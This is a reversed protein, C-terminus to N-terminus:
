LDTLFKIYVKRDRQNGKKQFEVSQNAFREGYYKSIINDESISAKIKLFKRLEETRRKSIDENIKDSGVADSYGDITVGIITNKKIFDLIQLKDSNNLEISGPSYFFEFTNEKYDKNLLAKIKNESNTTGYHIAFSISDLSKLKRNEWMSLISSDYYTSMSPTIEWIVNVFYPWRGIYLKDPKIAKGSNTNILGVLDNEDGITKYVKINNPVKDGIYEVEKDIRSTSDSMQAADNDDIMTDLQLILGVIVDNNTNNIITYEIRYFQGWKNIEVDNFNFDVPTLNQIVSLGEFKYEISFHISKENGATKAIGSIYCIGLSSYSLYPNNTAYKGNINLVFHSTSHPIPYGYMLRKNGKLTTVGITFRGDDNGNNISSCNIVGDFSRFSGNNEHISFIKQNPINKVTELQNKPPIVNVTIKVKKEILNGEDNVNLVFETTELLTIKKIGINPLNKGIYNIEVDPNNVSVVKWTLEVEEGQNISYKNSTFEVSFETSKKNITSCGTLFNIVLVVVPIISFKKM